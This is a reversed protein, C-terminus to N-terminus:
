ANNVRMIIPISDVNILIKQALLLAQVNLNHALTMDINQINRTSLLLNNNQKHTVILIKDKCNLGWRDLMELLLKTNPRSFNSFFNHTVIINSQRNSLCAQLALIKEKRNVKNRYQRYKPGFIVGGGRWLPSRTSGARARGTGKQKWPKKGGGRVEGKTKTNHSGQRSRQTASSYARHVVYHLKHHFTPFEVNLQQDTQGEFDYIPYIKKITEIM